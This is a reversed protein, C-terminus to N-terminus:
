ALTKEPQFSVIQSFSSLPLSPYFFRLFIDLCSRTQQFGAYESPDYLQNGLRNEWRAILTFRLLSSSLRDSTSKTRRRGRNPTTPPSYVHSSHCLKWSGSGCIARNWRERGRGSSNIWSGQPSCEAVAAVRAVLIRIIRSCSTANRWRRAFAVPPYFPHRSEPLVNFRSFPFAHSQFPFALMAHHHEITALDLRSTEFKSYVMM